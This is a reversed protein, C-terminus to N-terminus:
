FGPGRADIPWLAEVAGQRVAVFWEHLNVTPDCHGPVLLVKEGLTLAPGDGVRRLVTHEDSINTTQWGSAAPAPLGSDTSFAKMGADLTARDGRVSMVGALIFLAHDFRPAEADQDNRAYDIDMLAYSGPQVENYVQSGAEYM